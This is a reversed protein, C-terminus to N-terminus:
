KKDKKKLSELIFIIQVKGAAKKKINELLKRLFYHNENCNIKYIKM